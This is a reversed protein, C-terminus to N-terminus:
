SASSARRPAHQGTPFRAGDVCFATVDDLWAQLLAAKRRAQRQRLWAIGYSIEMLSIVSLHLHESNRKLWAPLGPIAKPATPLHDLSRGHRGRLENASRAGRRGRRSGNQSIRQISRASALLRGFSPIKRTVEEGDAESVVIVASQGHRTVRQPGRALAASV